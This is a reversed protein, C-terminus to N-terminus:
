AGRMLIASTLEYTLMMCSMDPHSPHVVTQILPWAWYLFSGLGARAWGNSGGGGEGGGEQLAHLGAERRM